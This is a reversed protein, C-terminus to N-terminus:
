DSEKSTTKKVIPALGIRTGIIAASKIEFGEDSITEVRYSLTGELKVRSGKRMNLAYSQTVPSFILVNHWDTVTEVFENTEKDVYGCQEAISLSVFSKGNETEHKQPNKGLNGYVIVKAM